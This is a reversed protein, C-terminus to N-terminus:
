LTSILLGMSLAAVVFPLALLLLLFVNGVVHVDFIIRGLILVSIMECMALVAYPALKGLMLGLRGVPSVMLQELTGQERERVLSFATLSVTVLQLIVGILGPIMFVQTRMDPNFMVNTRVDIMT